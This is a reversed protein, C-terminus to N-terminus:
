RVTWINLTNQDDDVAAFRADGESESVAIGFAAGPSATPVDIQFQAVFKGHRTFEVLVNPASPDPNIADGNATILHGNPALLLGLPGHLHTADTYVVTGAGGDTTRDRADAVAFIENDGTSAVYLVDREGDYALGTPGIVLASPDLRHTYGSAIQTMNKVTVTNSSEDDFVLDLRTVTGSLVSSVFVQAREGQEHITLDWPGDLLTASTLNTVVAGNRDLIFLSGQHVAGIADTPVNGVLVFGRKLVGLATTLGVGAQAQFFVSLQGGPTIRVITTGTGQLNASGNFNSVLVDGPDLPGGKRFGNPVFAVGYPNQDGNGPVTSVVAHASAPLEGLLADNHENDATGPSAFLLVAATFAFATFSVRHKMCRNAPMETKASIAKSSKGLHKM